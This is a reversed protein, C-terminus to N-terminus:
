KDDKNIKRDKKDKGIKVTQFNLFKTSLTINVKLLLIVIELVNKIKRFPENFLSTM